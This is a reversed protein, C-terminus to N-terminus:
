SEHQSEADVLQGDEDPAPSASGARRGRAEAQQREEAGREDRADGVDVGAVERRVDGAARLEAVREDPHDDGRVQHRHQDLREGRLEPDRRPAVQGLDAALLKERRVDIPSQTCASAIAIAVSRASNRPAAIPKWRSKPIPSNGAASIVPAVVNAIRPRWRKPKRGSSATIVANTPTIAATSCRPARTRAGAARCPRALMGDHRLEVAALGHQEGDADEARRHHRM